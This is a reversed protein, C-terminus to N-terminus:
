MELYDVPLPDGRLWLSQGQSDEKWLKIGEEPLWDNDTCYIKYKMIPVGAVNMYFKFQQAKTHGVLRDDGDLLLSELFAKFDPVEEILHPITPKDSIGDVDMFSKMLSPHYPLKREEIAYEM